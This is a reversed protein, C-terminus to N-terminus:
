KWEATLMFGVTNRSYQFQLSAATSDINQFQYFIEGTIDRTLKYSLRSSVTLNKLSKDTNPFYENYAYGVTGDLILREYITHNIGLSAINTIM